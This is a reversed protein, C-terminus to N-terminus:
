PLIERTALIHVSKENKFITSIVVYEGGEKLKLKKRIDDPKIFFGRTTIDARRISLEDMRRKLNRLSAFTEVIKFIRFLKKYKIDPLKNDVLFGIKENLRHMHFELAVTNILHAKTIAINPELIYDNKKLNEILPAETDDQVNASEFIFIQNEVICTARRMTKKLDKFWLIALKNVNDESIIEIEPIDSLMKIEEYDFAPSIKIFVKQSVKFIKPLLENINPSANFISRTKTKGERMRQPDLFFVKSDDFSQNSALFQGAPVDVFNVKKEVGYVRANERAFMLHVPDNDIAIVNFKKAFSLLNGGNGCGIDIVTSVSTRLNLQDVLYDSLKENTAQEFGEKTFYMYQAKSFKTEAKKRLLVLTVVEALFPKKNNNLLFHTIEGANLRALELLLKRGDKSILFKAAEITMTFM